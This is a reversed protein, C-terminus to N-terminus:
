LQSILYGLVIAIAGGVLLWLADARERLGGHPLRRRLAAKLTEWSQLIASAKARSRAPASSYSRKASGSPKAQAQEESAENAHVPSHAEDALRPLAAEVRPDVRVAEIPGARAKLVPATHTGVRDALVESASTSPVPEKREADGVGAGPRRGWTAGGRAIGVLAQPAGLLALILILDVAVAVVALEPVFPFLALAQKGFFIVAAPARVSLATSRCGSSPFIRAQKRPPPKAGAFQRLVLKSSPHELASGEPLGCQISLKSRLRVLALALTEGPSLDTSVTASFTRALHPLKSLSAVSALRTIIAELVARERERRTLSIAPGATAVYDAAQAGDLVVAGGSRGFGGSLSADEIQVGGVADVLPAIDRPRLLAIHTVRLHLAGRAFRVLGAAGRTELVDGVTTGGGARVYAGGPISLLSILRRDPDTRAFLSARDFVIMVLQPKSLLDGSPALARKTAAPVRGNSARVGNRFSRFAVVGGVVVALLLLLLILAAV